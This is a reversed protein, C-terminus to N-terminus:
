YTLPVVTCQPPDKLLVLKTRSCLLNNYTALRLLVM